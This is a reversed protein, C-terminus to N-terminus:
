PRDPEEPKEAGAADREWQGSRRVTQKRDIEVAVAAAVVDDGVVALRMDQVYPQRGGVGRLDDAGPGTRLLDCGDVEVPVVLGFKDPAIADLQM